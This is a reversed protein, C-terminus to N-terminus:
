NMIMIFQDPFYLSFYKVITEIIM